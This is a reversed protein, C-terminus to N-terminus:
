KAHTELVLSSDIKSMLVKCSKAPGILMESCRESSSFRPRLSMQSLIQSGPAGEAEASNFERLVWFNKTITVPNYKVNIQSTSLNFRTEDGFTM